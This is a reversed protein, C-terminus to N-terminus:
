KPPAPSSTSNPPNTIVTAGGDQKLEVNLNYAPRTTGAIAPSMLMEAGKKEQTGYIGMRIWELRRAISLEEKLKAVQTRLLSLDNFQRELEAKETQMRKLEKLLFERDGESAALKQETEAIQKGLNSIDLTLGDMKKTLDDRQTELENIRADRKAMEAKAAEAAAQADNRAKTLDASTKTLTNSTSLLERTLMAKNTELFLTMREQEDLKARTEELRNSFTVIDTVQTKEIKVANNHRVLLGAGLGLSLLILVIIAAKM